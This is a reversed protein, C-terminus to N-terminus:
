IHSWQPIHYWSLQLQCCIRNPVIRLLPGCKCNVMNCQMCWKWVLVLTGPAASRLPLQPHFLCRNEVDEFCRVIRSIITPIGYWTKTSLTGSFFHVSQKPHWTNRFFCHMTNRQCSCCGYLNHCQLMESSLRWLPPFVTKAKWPIGSVMGFPRSVFPRPMLSELRSLQSRSMSPAGTMSVRSQTPPSWHHSMMDNKSIASFYMEDGKKQYPFEQFGSTLDHRMMCVYHDIYIYIDNKPIFLPKCIYLSKINLVGIWAFFIIIAWSVDLQSRLVARHLLRHQSPFLMPGLWLFFSCHKEKSILRFVKFVKQTILHFWWIGISYM